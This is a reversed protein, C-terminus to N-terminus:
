LNFKESEDDKEVVGSPVDTILEENMLNLLIRIRDRGGLSLFKAKKGELIGSQIFIKDGPKFEKSVEEIRIINETDVKSRINELINTSIQALNSGFMVLHSVGRTSNITTLNNKEVKFKTFIYRPFLPRISCHGSKNLNKREIMPLFTEFGQKELNREARMEEKAKTYVLFWKSNSNM